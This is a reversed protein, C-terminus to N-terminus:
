RVLDLAANISDTQAERYTRAAYLLHEAFATLRRNTYQLASGEGKVEQWRAFFHLEDDGAWANRLNNIERDALSFQRQLRIQLEWLESAQRNLRGHDTRIKTM